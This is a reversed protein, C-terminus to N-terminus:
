QKQGTDMELTAEVKLHNIKTTLAGKLKLKRKKFSVFYAKLSVFYAIGFDHRKIESLSCYCRSSARVPSTPGVSTGQVTTELAKFYHV